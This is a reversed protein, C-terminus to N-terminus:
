IFLFILTLTNQLARTIKIIGAPQLNNNGLNLMYLQTNHSLVTAIDDTATGSNNNNDLNFAVLTM